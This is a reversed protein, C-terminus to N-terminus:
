LPIADRCGGPCAQDNNKLNVTPKADPPRVGGCRVILRGVLFSLERRVPKPRRVDPHVGRVDQHLVTICEDMVGEHAPVDVMRPPVGDLHLTTDFTANSFLIQLLPPLPLHPPLLQLSLLVLLLLSPQVEFSPLISAHLTVSISEKGTNESEKAGYKWKHKKSKDRLRAGTTENCRMHSVLDSYMDKADTSTAMRQQPGHDIVGGIRWLAQHNKIVTASPTM